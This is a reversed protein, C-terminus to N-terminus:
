HANETRVTGRVALGGSPGEIWVEWSNPCSSSKAKACIKMEEDVYLPVLNRYEIERIVRGLKALHHSLVTLM